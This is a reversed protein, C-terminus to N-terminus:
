ASEGEGGGKPLGYRGGFNVLYNKGVLTKLTRRVVQPRLDREDASSRTDPSRVLFEDVIAKEPPMEGGVELLDLAIKYITQENKGRPTGKKHTVAVDSYEVVCSGYVDGDEDMGLPVDLLKFGYQQGEGPGDKIKSITLVRDDDCRAVELECDLAGKLGSWGRAGRAADKGSHHILIITAGTAEHLLKCHKIARGMDESSNENAGPTVQALTDVVLVDIQGYSVMAEALASVDKKELFSPAGTLVAIPLDPLAIGHHQAYAHLRNRFGAAGEAAIYGCRLGPTTKHGRWEAGRAIAGMLDLAMFSKGAGSEGYLVVLEARPLVHKIIWSAPKGAGFEAAQVFQFRKRAAIEEPTDEIIDFDDAINEALGIAEKLDEVGRHECHAHLCRFGGNDFGGTHAPWYTTSSDGTDTTHESEWPCTIHLRGDREVRKVMGAEHLHKAIPDNEHVADLKAAKISAARESVEETAFEDALASWLAEFETVNLVPFAEPLGGEWEYRAGSPHRGVAIFQQGTALFEIVGQATKFRRKTFAGELEFAVLFKSSNGRSRTPLAFREAIFARVANSEGADPIDIDLARVRRTQLCIGYDRVRGWKSIEDGTSTHQTWQSMGVVHGDSNYLSPVKGVEKINSRPSVRAKNNSVVPLLDETLGLVLDFHTWDDVSAGHHPDLPIIAAM